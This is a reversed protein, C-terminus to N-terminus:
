FGQEKVWAASSNYLTGKLITESAGAPAPIGFVKDITAEIVSSYPGTCNAGPVPYTNDVLVNHAITVVNFEHAFEIEGIAGKITEGTLPSTSEGSTLHQTVPEAESGIYCVDGLESLWRNEGKVKVPAVVASGIQALLDARSTSPIGALEITEYVTKLSSKNAHAYRYKLSEPWGLEEQEALSIHAIPEGPVKEPTPSIAEVGNVPAVYTEEGTEENLHLGYQLTVSKALPTTINGVKYSGGNEGSETLAYICLNVEPNNVPCNRYLRPSKSPKELAAASGAVVASLAFAAVLCLGLMRVRRV